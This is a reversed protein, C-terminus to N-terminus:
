LSTTQGEPLICPQKDQLHLFTTQRLYSSSQKDQMNSVPQRGTMLQNDTRLYPVICLQKDQQYSSPQKDQLKSFPQRGTILQNDTGWPLICPQKDQM